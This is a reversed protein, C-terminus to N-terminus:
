TLGLEATKQPVTTPQLIALILRRHPYTYAKDEVKEKWVETETGRRRGNRSCQFNKWAVTRGALLVCIMKAATLGSEVLAICIM